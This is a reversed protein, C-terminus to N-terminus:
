NDVNAIGNQVSNVDRRYRRITKEEQFLCNLTLYVYKFSCIHLFLTCHLANLAKLKHSTDALLYSLFFINTSYTSASIYQYSLYFFWRYIRTNIVFNTNYLSRNLIQSRCFMVKTKVNYTRRVTQYYIM